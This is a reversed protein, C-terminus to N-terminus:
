DDAEDDFIYVETGISTNGQDTKLRQTSKDTKKKYKKHLSDNSSIKFKSSKIRRGEHNVFSRSSLSMPSSDHTGSLNSSAPYHVIHDNSTQRGVHSVESHSETERQSSDLDAAVVRSWWNQKASSRASDWATIGTVLENSKSSPGDFKQVDFSSSTDIPPFIGGAQRENFIVAFRHPFKKLAFFVLENMVEDSNKLVFAKSITKKLSHSSETGVIEKYKHVM